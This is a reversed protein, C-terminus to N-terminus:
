QMQLLKRASLPMNQQEGGNLLEGGSFDGGEEALAFRGDAGKKKACPCAQALAQM